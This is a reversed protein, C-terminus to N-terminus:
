LTLAHLRRAGSRSYARNSKLKDRIKSVVHRYKAFNKQMNVTTTTQDKEPQM